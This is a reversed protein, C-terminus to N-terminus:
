ERHFKETFTFNLEKITLLIRRESITLAFTRSDMTNPISTVYKANIGKTSKFESLNITSKSSNKQVLQKQQPTIGEVM